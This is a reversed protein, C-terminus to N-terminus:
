GLNSSPWANLMLQLHRVARSGVCTYALDVAFSSCKQVGAPEAALSPFSLFPGRTDRTVEM